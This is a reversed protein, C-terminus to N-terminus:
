SATLCISWWNPDMAVMSRCFPAAFDFLWCSDFASSEVVGIMTTVIWVKGYAISAMTVSLASLSLLKATIM